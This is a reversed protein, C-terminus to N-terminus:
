EVWHCWRQRSRQWRTVVRRPGSANTLVVVLASPLHKWERFRHGRSRPRRPRSAAGHPSCWLLLIPRTREQLSSPSSTTGRLSLRGPERTSLLRRRRRRARPEVEALGAVSSSFASRTHHSRDDDQCVGHCSGASRWVVIGLELLGELAHLISAVRCTLSLSRSSVASHLGKVLSLVVLAHTDAPTALQIAPGHAPKHSRAEESGEHQQTGATRRTREVSSPLGHSQPQPRARRGRSM